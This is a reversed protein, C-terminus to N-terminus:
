EKLNIDSRLAKLGRVGSMDEIDIFELRDYLHGMSQLFKIHRQM